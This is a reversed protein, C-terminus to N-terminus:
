GCWQRANQFMKFWPSAQLKEQWEWPMWAWQWKLFTREPHPMIALHRGDPSCLAAIGATSGNPNFPYKETIKNEDDVYRVPTLKQEEVKKRLEQIFAEPKKNMLMEKNATKIAISWIKDLSNNILSDSYKSFPNGTPSPNPIQSEHNM